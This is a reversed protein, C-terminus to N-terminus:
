LMEREAGLLLCQQSGTINIIKNPTVDTWKLTNPSIKYKQSAQLRCWNTEEHLTGGTIVTISSNPLELNPSIDTNLFDNKDSTLVDIVTTIM